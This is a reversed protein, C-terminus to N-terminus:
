IWYLRNIFLGKILYSKNTKNLFDNDDKEMSFLGGLKVEM